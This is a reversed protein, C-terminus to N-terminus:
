FTRGPVLARVRTIRTGPDTNPDKGKLFVGHQTTTLQAASMNLAKTWIVPKDYLFACVRQGYVAM